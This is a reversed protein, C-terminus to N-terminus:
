GNLGEQEAVGKMLSGFNEFLVQHIGVFEKSSFGDIFFSEPTPYEIHIEPACIKFLGAALAQMKSGTPAVVIRHYYCNELFEKVLLDFTERYDLTSTTRKLHHEEDTENDQSFEDVVNRHIFLMADERWQLRPPRGNVMLLRSPNISSLLARVLQENFSMFAIVLSPSRQMVASSLAPTRVVQHVGFTPLCMAKELRDKNAEYDDRTPAYDKPETYIIRIDKQWERLLFVLMMILMKSMVSIDIVIEDIDTLLMDLKATLEMESQAPDFRHFDLCLPISKTRPSLEEQLKGLRSQKEPIYRFVVAREFNQGHQLAQLWQTAREEFGEAIFLLRRKSKQWEKSTTWLTVTPLTM